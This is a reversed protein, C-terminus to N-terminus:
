AAFPSKNSFAFWRTEAVGASEAELREPHPVPGVNVPVSLAPVITTPVAAPVVQVKVKLEAHNVAGVHTTESSLAM